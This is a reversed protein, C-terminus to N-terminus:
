PAAAEGCIADAGTGYIRDSPPDRGEVLASLVDDVSTKTDAYMAVAGRRRLKGAVARQLDTPTNGPRKLELFWHRGGYILLRDPMGNLGTQKVSMIGIDRCRRLLYNEIASELLVKDKM